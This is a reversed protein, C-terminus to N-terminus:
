SCSHFSDMRMCKSLTDLDIYHLSTDQYSFQTVNTYKKGMYNYWTPLAEKEEFEISDYHLKTLTAPIINESIRSARPLVDKLELIQITPLNKHLVELDLMDAVFSKLTLEELVPMNMLEPVAIQFWATM